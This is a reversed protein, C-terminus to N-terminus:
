GFAENAKIPAGDTSKFVLFLSFLGNVLLNATYRYIAEVMIPVLVNSCISYSFTLPYISMFLSLSSIGPFSVSNVLINISVYELKYSGNHLKILGTM